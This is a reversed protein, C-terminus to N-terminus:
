LPIIDNLIPGEGDDSKHAEYVCEEGVFIEEVMIENGGLVENVDEQVFNLEKNFILKDIYWNIMDVQNLDKVNEPILSEDVEVTAKTWSYTKWLATVKAM